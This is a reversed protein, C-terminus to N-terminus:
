ILGLIIYIHQNIQEREKINAAHTDAYRGVNLCDM